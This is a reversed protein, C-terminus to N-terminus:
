NVAGQGSGKFDYEVVKVRGWDRCYGFAWLFVAKGAGNFALLRHVPYDARPFANSRYERCVKGKADCVTIRRGDKGSSIFYYEEVGNKGLFQSLYRKPQGLKIMQEMGGTRLDVSRLYAQKGHYFFTTLRGADCTFSNGVWSHEAVLEMGAGYVYIVKRSFDGILVYEDWSELADVQQPEVLDRWEPYGGRSVFLLRGSQNDYLCLRGDAMAAGATIYCADGGGVDWLKTGGSAIEIVRDNVSDLLFVEGKGGLFIGAPGSRPRQRVGRTTQLWCGACEDCSGWNFRALVRPSPADMVEFAEVGPVTAIIALFIIPLYKNM